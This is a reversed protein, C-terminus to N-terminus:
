SCPGFDIDSIAHRFVREEVPPLKWYDGYLLSLIEEPNNPTTFETEGLFAKPLPSSLSDKPFREKGYVYSSCLNVYYKPAMSKNYRTQWKYLRKVILQKPLQAFCRVLLVPLRSSNSFDLKYRCKYLLAVKLFNLMHRQLFQQIQGNPLVDVPFVDVFIGQYMDDPNTEEIFKTGKLRIKAFPFGYCEETETTCLIFPESLEKKCVRIFREYDDRLIGIDLDDDWPIISGHRVAGLLTGGILFYQIDNDDCLRRIEKGIVTLCRHLREIEGCEAYGMGDIMGEELWGNFFGTYSELFGPQGAELAM